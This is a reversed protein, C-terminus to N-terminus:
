VTLLAEKNIVNKLPVESKRYLQDAVATVAILFYLIDFFAMNLTLSMILYGVMTARLAISLESAKTIQGPIYNAKHFSRATHFIMYMLILFFILGLYGHEAIMQFYSSHIALAEVNSPIYKNIVEPVYIVDFGGGLFPHDEAIRMSAKWMEVRGQFSSDTELEASSSIRESWTDAMYFAAVVGIPIILLLAKGLKKIHWTYYLFTIFLAIFGTRSQTGLVAIASCLACFLSFYRQLIHEAHTVFYVMFPFTMVLTLAMANNDEFFSFPPGVVHFGGGTVLTFIGGKIGYFGISIIFVKLFAHIRRETNLMAFILYALVLIKTFSVWKEYAMDVDFANFTTLTTFLYFFIIYTILYHHKYNKFGQWLIYSAFTTM